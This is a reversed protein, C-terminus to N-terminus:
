ENIRRRMNDKIARMKIRAERALIVGREIGHEQALDALRKPKFHKRRLSAAERLSVAQAQDYADTALKRERPSMGALKNDTRNRIIFYM